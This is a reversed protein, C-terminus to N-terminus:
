SMSLGKFLIPSGASAGSSLSRSCERECFRLFQLYESKFLSVKLFSSIEIKEKFILDNFNFLLKWLSCSTSFLSSLNLM